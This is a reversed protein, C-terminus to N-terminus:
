TTKAPPLLVARELVDQHFVPILLSALLDSLDVRSDYVAKFPTLGSVRLRYEATDCAEQLRGARLLRSIRPELRIKAKRVPIPSHMLKLLCWERPLLVQKVPSSWRSQVSRPIGKGFNILSFGCLLEELATPDFQGMAYAAADDPALPLAGAFPAAPAATREADMMRRLLVGGLRDSLSSGVWEAQGKGNAWAWPKGPEVPVLSSRFSGVGGSPKISAISAALRVELSGDDCAELWKPSLGFVPRTLAPKKSRDRGSILFDLRGFARLVMQFSVSSPNQACVFLAEDLTRRSQSFSAPLTKFERLFRDVNQLPRDIDGLLELEPNFAVPIRGAPLAVYSQGRRALFAFREFADIGRDVGLLGLARAFEMGNRVPKNALSSRGEAFLYKLEPLGVPSDWLPLWVEGRGDEAQESSAFGVPSFHVSFPSSLIGRYSSSSKRVLASAFMLTGELMLVYDWPNIKFDKKEIGMGQNYGGARGPDYQGISGKGMGQSFEGFAASRWWSRRQDESAGLLLSAVQQMFNNTYDLRGENGGTGLIPNYSAKGDTGLVFAADLWSLCSEPLRARCIALLGEKDGSRGLQLAVTRAKKVVKWADGWTTNKSKGGASARTEIANLTLSSVDEGLLEIREIQSNISALMENFTQLSKGSSSAAAQSLIGVLENLTEVRSEIEPWSRVQSIVDRYAKFRPETSQEIARIGDQTDGPFFGSGGNWPAVIPTPAYGQVFFDELEETGLTTRCVFGGVGWWGSVSRDAQEGLLRLIGLAKLYSALPRSSCGSLAHEHM